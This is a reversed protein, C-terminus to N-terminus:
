SSKTPTQKSVPLKQRALKAAASALCHEKWGESLYPYDQPYTPVNYEFNLQHIQRLGASSVGNVTILKSWLPQVWFWPMLVCWAEESTKFIVVPFKNAGHIHSSLPDRRSLEKGLQKLSYMDKYSDTRTDSGLLASVAEPDTTPHSGLLAETVKMKGPPAKVPHKWFRPDKVQFSFQTGCPILRPDRSQSYSRWIDAVEKDAELHLIQSLSSLATPGRLEISGISYRSDSVAYKGNSWQVVAAFFHEYVSPHLRVLVRNKLSDVIVIGPVLKKEDLYIWGNYTKQGKVLWDPLKACYRTFTRLFNSVGEDGQCEVVLESYYSSEFAITSEKAARSTSRFCKQNPSFPLQFGWRKTMHFRKAHWVHTPMWTFQKQRNGYKMNGTPKPALSNVSSRDFAAVANNLPVGIKQKLETLQKNLSRLKEKVATGSASPIGRAEKIKSALRLLRKQMKLRHLERGRSHPKKAPTGNTTNQMERLAKARLRKPIRKVNHSATRRRLKRPLSQFVRTASSNKTNLQSQEFAKIEYERSAIFEPVNLGGNKFSSDVVETRITRSNYLKSKKGTPPPKMPPAM